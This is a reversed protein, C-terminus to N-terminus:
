QDLALILTQTLTTYVSQRDYYYTKITSDDRQLKFQMAATEEYCERLMRASVGSVRPCTLSVGSWGSM